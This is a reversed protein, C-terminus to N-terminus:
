YGCCVRSPLLLLCLYVCVAICLRSYNSFWPYPLIFDSTRLIVIWFFLLFYASMEPLLYFLFLISCTWPFTSVYVAFCLRKWCFITKKLHSFISLCRFFFSILFALCSTVYAGKQSDEEKCNVEKKKWNNDIKKCRFFDTQRFREHITEKNRTTGTQTM